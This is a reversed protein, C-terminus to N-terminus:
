ASDRATTKPQNNNAIIAVLNITIIIIIIRTESAVVFM